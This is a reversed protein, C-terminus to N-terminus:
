GKKDIDDFIPKMKM